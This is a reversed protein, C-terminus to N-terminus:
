QQITRWNKDKTNHKLYAQSRQPFLYIIDEIFDFIIYPFYYISFTTDSILLSTM